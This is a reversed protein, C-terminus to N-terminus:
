SHSKRRRNGAALFIGTGILLIGLVCFVPIPWMVQGTQILSATNTITVVDGSVSYSPTYASPIQTELVSWEGNGDLEDWTYTWNNWEGLWVTEVAETGNYLTVAVRDPRD